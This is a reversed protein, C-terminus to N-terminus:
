AEQNFISITSKKNKNGYTIEDEEETFMSINLNVYDLSDKILSSNLQNKDKIKSLVELFEERLDFVEKKDEDDLIKLLRLIDIDENMGAKHQINFIVKNRLNDFKGLKNVINNEKNTLKDLKEINGEILIETKENMLNLLDRYVLIEEKLVKKLIDVLDKM